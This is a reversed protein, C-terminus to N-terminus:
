NFFVLLKRNETGLRYVIKDAGEQIKRLYVGHGGKVVNLVVITGFEM